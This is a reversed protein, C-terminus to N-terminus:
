SHPFSFLLFEFGHVAGDAALEVEGPGVFVETWLFDFFFKLIEGFPADLAGVATPDVVEALGLVGIGTLPVVWLAEVLMPFPELRLHLFVGVIVPPLLVFGGRRGVFAGDAAFEFEFVFPAVFDARDASPLVIPHILNIGVRPGRAAHAVVLGEGVEFRFPCGIGAVSPVFRFALHIRRDM